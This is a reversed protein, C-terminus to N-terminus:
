ILKWYRLIDNKLNETSYKTVHDNKVPRTLQLARLMGTVFQDENRERIIYGNIGDLIIDDASSFETVCAPIGCAVAEMLATPWGEKFSGMLYVDSANLYLAIEERSKRGTLAIKDTLKKESIYSKIRLFDEGDGVIIFLSERVKRTFKEYSDIMFKWGKVWALRGTTVMIVTGSTLQLQNRVAMKDMPRFLKTNIRTPFKIIKKNNLVGNSRIIINKISDDDGRVLITNVYEIKKFFHREFWDAFQSAYSYKAIVLPNEVGPFSYCINKGTEAIAILSEQRQVFINTIGIRLIKRKYYKTLLLNVFRDPLINRTRMKYYKAMAFFDYEIGNIVKKFWRGVPDNVSTTIGVLALDNNFSEMMNKAFTLYGGIPYNQFDTFDILLIRNQNKM